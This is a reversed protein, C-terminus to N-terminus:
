RRNLRLSAAIAPRREREVNGATGFVAVDLSVRPGLNLGIGATPQWQERSYYGGGRLDLAGLRYEVGGRFSDGNFGHAYEALASVRDGRHGGRVRYDVPLEIRVDGIPVDPGDVFGDEATLLNGLVRTERRADRWGIHNGIGNISFGAEWGDILVAVGADIAHGRGSTATDRNILVPSPGVPLVTLLGDADTDLRAEADIAELRLGRLEHYDVAALVMRSPSGAITYRGRYGGTIALAAQGTTQTAMSMRANPFYVNTSSALTDIIRQDLDFATRLALYPGAGVFVGHNTGARDGAVRITGGWTPAALGEAAPQRAPVFGRYVNLDRSVTANGIDVVLRRGGESQSNDRGIIYHFPSASYEIARILDFEDSDPRFIDLHRVVQILGIPLPISRYPQQEDLIRDAIDRSGASGMAIRRADLDWNQAAAPAAGLLLLCLV